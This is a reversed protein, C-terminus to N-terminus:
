SSFYKIYINYLTLIFILNPFARKTVDKIKTIKYSTNYSFFINIICKIFSNFNLASVIHAKGSKNKIKVNYFIYM